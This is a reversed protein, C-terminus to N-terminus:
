AYLGVFGVGAGFVATKPLFTLFFDFDFCFLGFPPDVFVNWGCVGRAGNFAVDGGAAVTVLVEGFGAAAVGADFDGGFFAFGIEACFFVGLFGAECFAGGAGLTRLNSRRVNCRM